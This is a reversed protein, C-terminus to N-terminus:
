PAQASRGNLNLNDMPEPSSGDRWATILFFSDGRQRETSIGIEIDYFLQSRLIVTDAAIAHA